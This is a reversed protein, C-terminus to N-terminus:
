VNLLRVGGCPARYAGVVHADPFVSCITAILIASPSQAFCAKSLEATRSVSTGDTSISVRVFDEASKEPRFVWGRYAKPINKQPM